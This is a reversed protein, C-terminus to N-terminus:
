LREVAQIIDDVSSYRASSDVNCAKHIIESLKKGLGIDAISVTLRDMIRPDVNALWTQYHARRAAEDFGALYDQYYGPINPNIGINMMYTLMDIHMSETYLITSTGFITHLIIGLAYTDRQVYEDETPDDSVYFFAEPTTVAGRWELLGFSNSTTHRDKGLGFDVLKVKTADMRINGAHLDRHYIGKSHAHKLGTCIQKFLELKETDSASSQIRGLYSEFGQELFEMAYYANQGDHTVNSHAKIINDHPSLHHLYKNEDKFRKYWHKDHPIKTFKLAVVRNTSLHLAKYVEGM